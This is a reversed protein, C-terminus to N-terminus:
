GMYGRGALGVAAAYEVSLGMLKDQLSSPYSVNIWANGFEVPLGTSNALFPGLEPLSSAAGTVVLKELKVDPYRGLFYKTSKEVESVLNDLTPKIAKFVQGELKSQTLGFKFTFQNAQVEDLGLNQAVARVMTSGGVSVSRILRPTNNWIISIDSDLSGFDVIVVALNNVPLLARAVATANAELALPELGAKELINVYKDIASNPAAVLLVELQKGDKSQDIVSWDLKVQDLAMPIYQEAQYRIAKALQANDLKPTTIVTAFIKNASLGVVVNKLAVRNEHVLQRVLDAIKDQDIKSDSSTLNAPVPLAGYAVLAPHDGGRRLQVLRIASSGIDLGFFEADKVFLGM